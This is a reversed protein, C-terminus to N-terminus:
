RTEQHCLKSQPELIPVNAKVVEMRSSVRDGTRTPRAAAFFAVLSKAKSPPALTKGAGRDFHAYLPPNLFPTRM